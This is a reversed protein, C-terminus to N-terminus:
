YIYNGHQFSFVRAASFKVEGNPMAGMLGKGFRAALKMVECAKSTWM